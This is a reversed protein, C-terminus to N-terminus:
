PLRTIRDLAPAPLPNAQTSKATLYAELADSDVGGGVLNTGETFVTFNDGGPALFSNM